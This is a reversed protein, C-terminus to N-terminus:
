RSLRNKGVIIAYVLLLVKRRPRGCCFGVYRSTALGDNQQDSRLHLLHGDDAGHRAGLLVSAAGAPGGKYM